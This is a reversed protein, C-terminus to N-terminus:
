FLWPSATARPVLPSIGKGGIVLSVTAQAVKAQRALESNTWGRKEMEEILWVSFDEM